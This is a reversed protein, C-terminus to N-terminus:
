RPGAVAPIKQLNHLRDASETSLRDLQSAFEHDFRRRTENTFELGELLNCMSTGAEVLGFRWRPASSDGRQRKPSTCTAVCARLGNQPSLPFVISQRLDKRSPSQRSPAPAPHTVCGATGPPEAAFIIPM